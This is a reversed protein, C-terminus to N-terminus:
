LVRHVTHSQSPTLHGSASEAADDVGELGQRGTATSSRQNPKRVVGPHGTVVGLRGGACACADSKDVLASFVALEAHDADDDRLHHRARDQSAGPADATAFAAEQIVELDSEIAAFDTRAQDSAAIIPQTCRPRRTVM